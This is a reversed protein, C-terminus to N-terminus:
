VEVNNGETGVPQNAGEQGKSDNNIISNEKNEVKQEEEQKEEMIVKNPDDHLNCNAYGDDYIEFLNQEDDITYIRGKTFDVNYIGAKHANKEAFIETDLGSKDEGFKEVESPSIITVDENNPDIKMENTMYDFVNVADNFLQGETPYGSYIGYGAFEPAIVNVSLTSRIHTLMENALNIDEANGHFFIAYIKNNPSNNNSKIYLCPISNYRNNAPEDTDYEEIKTKPIYLIEGTKVKDYTYSSDPSPFIFWDLDM